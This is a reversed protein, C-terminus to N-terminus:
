FVIAPLPHSLLFGQIFDCNQERLIGFQDQNEVGEAVVNFELTHAMTIIAKTIANDKSNNTINEILSKDIKLTAVPFKKLYSFSSFGAGFDDISISCGLKKLARLISISDNANQMVGTETIELNLFNGDMGTDQLLHSIFEVFDKRKFHDVSINVSLKLPPFGTENLIKYQSCAKRLVWQDILIILDNKEALPIFQDPPLFGVAPQQLRVLAEM